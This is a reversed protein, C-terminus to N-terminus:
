LGQEPFEHFPGAYLKTLLANNAIRKSRPGIHMEEPLKFQSDLLGSDRLQVVLQAWTRHRGDSANIREGRLGSGVSWANLCECIDSIHILNIFSGYDKILGKHLWRVPDRGPGYIGALHLLFAGQLRLEEETRVRIQSLDLPTKETVIEGSEQTLYASTSALIAVKKDAARLSSFFSNALKQEAENQAAPFTWIIRSFDDTVCWSEPDALDFYMPEDLTGAAQASGQRSTVLAQFGNVRMLARAVYGLGLILTAAM